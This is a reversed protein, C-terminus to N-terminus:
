GILKKLDETFESRDGSLRNEGTADPAIFGQGYQKPFLGGAANGTIHIARMFTKELTWATPPKIPCAAM